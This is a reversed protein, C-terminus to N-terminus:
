QTLCAIEFLQQEYRTEYDRWAEVFKPGTPASFAQNAQYESFRIENAIAYLQECLDHMNDDISSLEALSKTDDAMRVKLEAFTTMFQIISPSKNAENSM